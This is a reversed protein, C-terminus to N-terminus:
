LDWKLPAPAPPTDVRPPTATKQQAARVAARLKEQEVPCVMVRDVYLTKGVPYAVVAAPGRVDGLAAARAVVAGDVAHGQCGVFIVLPVQEDTAAKHGEGYSKAVPRHPMPAVASPVSGALALAVAARRARADDAPAPGVCLAVLVLVVVSCRM